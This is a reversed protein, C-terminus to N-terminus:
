QLDHKQLLMSRVVGGLSGSAAAQSLFAKAEAGDSCALAILAERRDEGARVMAALRYTTEPGDIQGLAKAAAIRVDERPDNLRDFLANVFSSPAEHLAHAAASGVAPTKLLGLYLPVSEDVDRYLLARLLRQQLNRDRELTATRALLPADACQCLGEMAAAHAEPDNALALLASVSRSTAIAALLRTASLRRSGTSAFAISSLRQELRDTGVVKCLRAGIRAISDDPASPSIERLQEAVQDIDIRKATAAAPRRKPKPQIHCVMLELPTPPRSAVPRILVAFQVDSHQPVRHSTKVDPLTRVLSHESQVTQQRATQLAGFHGHNWIAWTAGAVVGIAAAAALLPKLWRAKWFSDPNQGRKALAEWNARLRRTSDKTPEPWRAQALLADLAEDAEKNEDRHLNM